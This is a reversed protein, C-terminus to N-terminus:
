YFFIWCVFLTAVIGFSVNFILKNRKVKEESIPKLPIFSEVFFNIGVYALFTLPFLLIGYKVGLYLSFVAVPLTLIGLLFGIWGSKLYSLNKCSPCTAPYVNSALVKQFFKIEEKQCHPCKNNM